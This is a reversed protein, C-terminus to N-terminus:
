HSRCVRRGIKEEFQAV